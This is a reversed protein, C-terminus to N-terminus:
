DIDIRENERPLQGEEGYVEDIIYFDRNRVQSLTRWLYEGIMGLMLIQIGGLVLMVIMPPAWGIVPIDWIIKSLFIILAYIFGVIAIVAGILSLMRIPAFSYSMLGDLFYTIKKGLTWRSKGVARKQRIYSIYKTKFGLWLIEGQIFPHKDVNRMFADLSRRGLLFYDFGGTPLSPFAMKRMLSYFIKSTIVRYFSEDRAERKCAVVEYKEIFYARLMDNILAPPDQGDASMAVVCKGRAYSFGALLANGQGFNRTLKIIKVIDPYQSRIKLLELLSGDGSGDDVFIIECSYDNNQRIVENYISDMTPTLSGENYFVPIVISYGIM